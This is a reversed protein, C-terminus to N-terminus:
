FYMAGRVDVRHEAHRRDVRGATVDLDLMEFATGRLGEFRVGLRMQSGAGAPGLLAFPTLVGPVPQLRMGYGVQADMSWDDRMSGLHGITRFADDRWLAQAGGGSAGWHPALAMSLGLGDAGPSYSAMVSGGSESYASNLALIRGRAELRFRSRPCEYRLGGAAELGGGTQGDGGDFRGSLEGYPTVKACSSMQFTHAGEVGLRFRQADVAQDAIVGEGEATSLNVMGADGRLAMDLGGMTGLSRRAGLIGLSMSLDSEEMTGTVGRDNEATGMGVGGVAWIDTGRTPAVRLYPYVSTIVTTLAGSGSAGDGVFDYDTEGMSYSVAVGFQGSSAVRKDAGLYVSTVTGSHSGYDPTGEFMNYDGLGWLTWNPLNPDSGGGSEGMPVAFSTSRLAQKWSFENGSGQAYRLEPPGFGRAGLHSAGGEGLLSYGALNMKLAPRAAFRTGIATSVSSLTTRGIAALADSVIQTENPETIVSVTFAQSADPGITNMATVEVSADGEIVASVTLQSGEVSVTAVGPNSSTASYTMDLGRFKESLDVVGDAGGVYLTMAPIPTVVTPEDDNDTITITASEVTFGGSASGDVVITEDYEPILEDPPTLTLVGSGSTETAAVTIGPISATYDTGDEATGSLSLTIQTDDLLATSGDGLVATVTVATEGDGEDITDRDVSLAITTPRIDNDTVTLEVDGIDYGEAAGTLLITKDGDVLNEEILTLILTGSGVTERELIRVAAGAAANEDSRAVALDVDIHNLLATSGDGLTATVALSVEGEGEDFSDRDVSLTITTPTIDNDTVTLEVDGINLGAASGTLLITKDGDVLNEEILTLSLSASASTEGAAITVSAGTAANDDSEAIALAVETDNLLATSGDGLTATVTLSTEGDGEDFTDTDVTLAISTPAVDNDALGIEASVVTFGDAAGSVEITEDGEALNDDNPTLILTGSGDVAGAAVTITVESGEYDPGLAEDTGSLSLAVQTETLLATSGDGLTATVNVATEGAGEDLSATDVTLTIATPATDNDILAVMASQVDFEDAAGSVEITEQGEALNDDVVTVSVPGSGATAGAAVTITVEAPASYDPGLAEDTGSLSLAVQTETLLATSGDGLTATVTLATEGAGESLSAPDAVTLTISAPAVDNDTLGIAASNVTFGDAAGAVEISEDGEALNDDNPTLTLTNSGDVAGAAITIMLDGVEYDPGLGEETGSLSVAVMTETLIATSGDGLTATVEVASEGAGENLSPTGVTLTISTPAVDNDTLGISASEVTFGDAAGSVEITEDGEALNDDNPTLALTSSGDVAGAAVTITVDTAATYDPGLDVHTGSLSLAVTTETLIATSGDGLIATVQVGTEGAAEDLSATDVTLAISTPVVDNDILTIAASEVTFGDAAGAVEISEDGEGALNDDNPTLTLTSSGDVAGAAVTITVESAAEYDPGLTEDTGSLSLTVQTDVILATSDDGLTATVNVATEGAGEDLSATDVALTISTPVVDNDILTIMASEVTFGDAAGAVEISEDGEGALNDDIPTLVLINSGDVAGAAVTITVESAAEYDPGLTEDTGSLSLTVQTDVILATSGDGLTATVNVATEGAGEDLSATDVALTISTPVVDNDILTIAASEVTFGDAAGAVEISEDGEGALNDDNPTLTLTSSGDVAGAAVTITVESAAEYDPGLAEDTGSLSVAVTTETLLATSGDGLTATVQVGTESAGEDLSATDVTLTISTPAVDNDVLAIMASEVTFDDATGSVEITEDGEALNDDNLTLTLTGSAGTQEAPVSITLEDENVSYDPGLDVHTGSLSLAVTTETLIATSGDGLTATVQVGTEGAGEDLSATDVTLTISTPAVDNDTVAIEAGTVELDATEAAGGTVTSTGELAITEAIDGEALNDDNLSVSLTTSGETEGAPISIAQGAWEATYDRGEAQEATGADSISVEVPTNLSWARELTATVTVAVLGDGEGLSAQDVTLTVGPPPGVDIPADAEAPPSENTGAPATATVSYTYSTGLVFSEDVFTTEGADVSGVKTPEADEAGQRWINYNKVGNVGVFSGGSTLDSGAPVANLRDSASLEWTITVSTGESNIAARVGTVSEPTREAQGAVPGSTITQATAPPNAWLFASLGVLITRGILGKSHSM